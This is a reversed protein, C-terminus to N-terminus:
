AACHQLQTGFFLRSHCAPAASLCASDHYCKNKCSLLLIYYGKLPFRMFDVPLQSHLAENHPSQDNDQVIMFALCFLLAFCSKEFMEISGGQESKFILGFSNYSSSYLQKEFQAFCAPDVGAQLCLRVSQFTWCDTQILTEAPRGEGPRQGLNSIGARPTLKIQVPIHMGHWQLFGDPYCYKVSQYISQVMDSAFM